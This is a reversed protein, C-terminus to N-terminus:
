VKEYKGTPFEFSSRTHAEQFTHLIGDTGGGLFRISLDSMDSPNTVDYQKRAPPLGAPALFHDSFSNLQSHFDLSGNLSYIRGPQYSTSIM